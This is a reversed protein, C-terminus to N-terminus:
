TDNVEVLCVATMMIFGFVKRLSQLGRHCPAADFDQACFAQCYELFAYGSLRALALKAVKAMCLQVMVIGKSEWAEETSLIPVGLAPPFMCPDDMPQCVVM